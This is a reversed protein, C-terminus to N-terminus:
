VHARGIQLIAQIVEPSACITGEATATRCTIEKEGVDVMVANGSADFHTLKKM